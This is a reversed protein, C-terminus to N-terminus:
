WKYFVPSGDPLLERVMWLLRSQEELREMYGDGYVAEYSARVITEAEAKTTVGSLLAFAKVPGIRPCGPINDVTDGVLMQYFFFLLGTGRVKDKDLWLKGRRDVLEPGFSAQSGCEWSFALGPVMRLDKDRTCIVTESPRSSQEIAMLDDAEFGNGMRCDYNALMYATLNDFHFPKDSKRTGKYPKTTAVAERFQPLLTLEEGETWRSTRNLVNIGHANATLFGIPPEESDCDKIIGTIRNDLLESVFDFERIIKIKEGAENLEEYEGCCGIEYRLVDFDICCQVM